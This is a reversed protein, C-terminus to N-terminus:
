KAEWTKIITLVDDATATAPLTQKALLKGKASILIVPLTQGTLEAQWQKIVPSGDDQDQILLTHGKAKLYDYAAGSRLNSKLRAFAPGDTATEHVILVDRPGEVVPVVPTPVIVPWTVDCGKGGLSYAALVLAAVFTIQAILKRPTM